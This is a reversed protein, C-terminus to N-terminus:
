PLKLFCIPRQAKRMDLRPPNTVIDFGDCFYFPTRVFALLKGEVDEAHVLIKHLEDHWVLLIREERILAAYQFKKVSSSPSCAIESLSDIVQVQFGSPLILETQNPQLLSFIIKTTETSLTFAVSVNIKQM